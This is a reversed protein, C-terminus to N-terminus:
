KNMGITSDDTNYAPNQVLNKNFRLEEVNIPFFLNDISVMKNKVSAAGSILKDAVFKINETTNERLAKRVLDYWRKGEFSLERLREDLVLEHAVDVTTPESLPNKIKTRTTDIRSRVNITKVIDFAEKLDPQDKLVLAEAKMLMVDTQRYVIWNADVKDKARFGVAPSTNAIYKAVKLKKPMEAGEAYPYNVFSYKRLDDKEYKKDLFSKPVEVQPTIDSVGAGYMFQLGKFTNNDANGSSQSCLNQDIQLEFISERSNEDIFIQDFSKSQYTKNETLFEDVNYILHYKDNVDETGAPKHKNEDKYQADLNDLIANCNAICEAYYNQVNANALPNADGNTKYYTTFAARWLNVDAKMALVANRTIRGHNDSSSSYNGSPMVLGEAINLDNMIMDLADLPHVQKYDPLESDNIAPVMAMPI